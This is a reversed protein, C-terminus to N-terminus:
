EDMKRPGKWSFTIGNLATIRDKTIFCKRKTDRYYKQTRQVRVWKGLATLDGTIPVDFNGNSEHYKKLAEFNKEWSADLEPFKNPDAKFGWHFDIQNLKAIVEQDLVKRPKKGTMM